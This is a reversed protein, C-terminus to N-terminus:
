RDLNRTITKVVEDIVIPKSLHGNMVAELSTQVDEAFANATMAIIPIMCGDPRNQQNRIAKTAEYGNMNPMMIYMDASIPIVLEWDHIEIDSLNTVRFEVTRGYSTNIGRENYCSFSAPVFQSPYAFGEPMEKVWGDSILTEAYLYEGDKDLEQRREISNFAHLRAMIGLMLFLVM